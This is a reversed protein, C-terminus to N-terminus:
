SAGDIASSRASCWCAQHDWPISANGGTQGRGIVLCEGRADTDSVTRVNLRARQLFQEAAVAFRTNAGAEAKEVIRDLFQNRRLEAGFRRKASAGRHVVLKEISRKYGLAIICIRIGETPDDIGRLALRGVQRQKARNKQIAVELGVQARLVRTLVIQGDLAFQAVAGHQLNAVHTRLPMAQKSGVINVRRVWLTAEVDDVNCRSIGGVDGRVSGLGSASGSEFIRLPAYINRLTILKM